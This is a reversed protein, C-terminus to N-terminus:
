STSKGTMPPLRLLSLLSLGGFILYLYLMLIRWILIVSAAMTVGLFPKLLLTGSMEAGGVGGPIMFLHGVGMAITQIFGSELWSVKGGLVRICLYLTSLYILWYSLCAAWSLTLRWAPLAAVRALARHLGVFFKRMFKQGKPGIRSVGPISVMVRFLLKHQYLLLCTGTIVFLMIGVILVISTTMSAGLSAALGAFAFCGMLTVLVLADMCAAVGFIVLCSATSVGHPALLTVAAAPAGAGMPTTKSVFETALYIRMMRWYGLNVVQKDLLVRLRLLNLNWVLFMVLFLGVLGWWPLQHMHSIAGWGGMLVPISLGASVLFLLLTVM